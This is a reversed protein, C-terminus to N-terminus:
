GSISHRREFNTGEIFEAAVTLGDENRAAAALEAVRGRLKQNRLAETVAHALKEASMKKHPIPKPAAGLKNLRWGWFFQDMLFPIVVSPTGARAAAGVTGAGGHHVAVAMKPFLWDHPIDDIAFVNSPLPASTGLGGWGSSVVARCGITEVVRLVTETTEEADKMNMSGFGFYVPPPGGDLFQLLAPPPLRNKPGDLFLFGTVRVNQPWERAPPVVHRSFALLFPEGAHLAKPAPSFLSAKSMGLVKRAEQMLSRTALWLMQVGFKQELRNLWGPLPVVPHFPSPYERSWLAPQLFAHVVPVRWYEAFISGTPDSMGSAVIMDAGATLDRGELALQGGYRRGVDRMWRLMALPNGGDTFLRQAEPRNMEAKLDFSYPRLSVGYLAALESFEVFSVLYADHGRERLAACLAIFPQVDGRSGTAIVAIRM